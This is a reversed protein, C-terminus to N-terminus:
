SHAGCLAPPPNHEPRAQAKRWRKVAICVETYAYRMDAGSEAVLDFQWTSRCAITFCLWPPVEEADLQETEIFNSAGFVLSKIDAMSIRSVSKAKGSAGSEGDAAAAAAAQVLPADEDEDDLDEM